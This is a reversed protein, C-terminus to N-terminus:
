RPDGGSLPIIEVCRWADIPVDNASNTLALRDFRVPRNRWRRAVEAASTAKAAAEVPGYLLSVHPTFPGPDLRFRAIAAERLRQLAPVIPFAAYFSRFFLDSTVIDSVTATFPGAAAALARSAEGLTEPDHPLDGLLTLHPHFRPTGHTRALADVEDRFLAEDVEAALLWYSAQAPVPAPQASTM